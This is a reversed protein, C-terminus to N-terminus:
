ITMLHTDLTFIFWDTPVCKSSFFISPFSLASNIQSLAMIICSYDSWPPQWSTHPKTEGSADPHHPNTLPPRPCTLDPFQFWLPVSVDGFVQTQSSPWWISSPSASMAIPFWLLPVIFFGLSFNAELESAFWWCAMLSSVKFYKGSWLHHLSTSFWLRARREPKWCSHLSPTRPPSSSFLPPPQEAEEPIPVLFM